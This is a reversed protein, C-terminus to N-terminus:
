AAEKVWNAAFNTGNRLDATIKDGMLGPQKLMAYGWDAGLFGLLYDGWNTVRVDTFGRKDVIFEVDHTGRLAAHLVVTNKGQVGGVWFYAAFHHTQDYSNPTHTPDNPDPVEDKDLQARFAKDWYRRHLGLDSSKCVVTSDPHAGVPQWLDAFVWCILNFLNASFRSDVSYMQLNGRTSAARSFLFAWDVTSGVCIPMNKEGDGRKAWERTILGFTNGNDKLTIGAFERIADLAVDSAAGTDALDTGVRIQNASGDFSRAILKEVKFPINRKDLEEFLFKMKSGHRDILKGRIDAATYAM